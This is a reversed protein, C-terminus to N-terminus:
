ESVIAKKKKKKRVVIITATIGGALIIVASITITMYGWMPIVFPVGPIAVIFIGMEDTEVIIRNDKIKSSLETLYNEDNLFYVKVGDVDYDKNLTILYEVKNSLSYDLNSESHIQINFAEYKVSVKKMAEKVRAFENGRVVRGAQLYADAPLVGLDDSVIVLEDLNESVNVSVSIINYSDNNLSTKYDSISAKYVIEYHGVKTFKITETSIKTRTDEFVLEIDLPLDKGTFSAKVKPLRFSKNLPLDYSTGGAIDLSPIFEGPREGLDLVTDSVKALTEKKITINFNQFMDMKEIFVSFNLTSFLNAKSLTYTYTKNEGEEKSVFYGNQEKGLVLTLDVLSNSKQTLSMYYNDNIREIVLDPAFYKKIMNVGIGSTGGIEYNAKYTGAEITPLDAAKASVKFLLLSGFLVIVIAIVRKLDFIKKM